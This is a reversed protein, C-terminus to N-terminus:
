RAQPRTSTKRRTNRPLIGAARDAAEIRQGLVDILAGAHEDGTEARAILADLMSEVEHRYAIEARRLRKAHIAKDPPKTQNEVYKAAPGSGLLKGEGSALRAMRYALARRAAGAPVGGNALAADLVGATARLTSRPRPGRRTKPEWSEFDDLANGFAEDQVLGLADRGALIQNALRVRRASAEARNILRQLAQRTAAVAPSEDALAERPRDEEGLWWRSGRELLWHVFPGTEEQLGRKIAEAVLAGARKRQKECAAAISRQRERKAAARQRERARVADRRAKVEPDAVRRTGGAAAADAGQAIRARM